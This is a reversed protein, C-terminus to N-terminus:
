IGLETLRQDMEHMLRGIHVDFDRGSAVEAAQRFVLDRMSEPLAEPRPLTSGDILVPIVPIDKTLATEIELRVWDTEDALRPSAWHPGIIALLLDSKQLVIQIQKRFDLGVAMTDIDMFVHDRGYRQALRDFIHGTIWITDERRYSLTITPMLLGGP